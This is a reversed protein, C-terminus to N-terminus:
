AAITFIATTYDESIKYYKVAGLDINFRRQDRCDLQYGNGIETVLNSKKAPKIWEDRDEKTQFIGLIASGDENHIVATFKFPLLARMTDQFAENIETKVKDDTKSKTIIEWAALLAGIKATAM